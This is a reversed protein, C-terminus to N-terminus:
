GAQHTGEAVAVATLRASVVVAGLTSTSCTNVLQTGAPLDEVVVPDGQVNYPALVTPNTTVQTATGPLFTTGAGTTVGCTVTHLTLPGQVGVQTSVLYDGAEPVTVDAGAKIPTNVVLLPVALSNPPYSRTRAWTAGDAGDAGDAGPEGQPGQPGTEGKPGQAGREGQAGAAGAAGAAGGRRAADDILRRTAASLTRTTVAGNAIKSATVSRYDLKASTVARDRIDSTRVLKDAAYAGGTGVALFLAISATVNAYSLHPTIRPM